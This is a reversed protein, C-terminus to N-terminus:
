WFAVWFPPVPVGIEAFYPYWIGRSRSFYPYWLARDESGRRDGDEDLLGERGNPHTGEGLARGIHHNACARVSMRVAWGGEWAGEM